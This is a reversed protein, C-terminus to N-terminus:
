EYFEIQAYKIPYYYNGKMTEDRKFWNFKRPDVLFFYIDQGEVTPMFVPKGNIKSVKNIERNVMNIKEETAKIEEESPGGTFLNDIQTEIGIPNAIKM